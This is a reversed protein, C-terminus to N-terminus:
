TGTATLNLLPANQPGLGFDDGTDGGGTDPDAEIIIDGGGTEVSVNGEVVTTGQNPELIGTNPDVDQGFLGDLFEGAAEALEGLWITFTRAQIGAVAPSSFILFAVFAILLPYLWKKM